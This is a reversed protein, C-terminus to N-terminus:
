QGAEESFEFVCAEVKQRVEPDLMRGVVHEILERQNLRQCCHGDVVSFWQTDPGATWEFGLPVRICDLFSGM